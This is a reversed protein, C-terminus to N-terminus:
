SLRLAKQEPQWRAVDLQAKGIGLARVWHATADLTSWTRVTGKGTLAALAGQRATIVEVHFLPGDGIIHLAKVSGAEILARLTQEDM